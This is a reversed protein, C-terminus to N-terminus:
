AKNKVQTDDPVISLFFSRSISYVLIGTFAVGVFVPLAAISILGAKAAAYGAVAALLVTNTLACLHRVINPRTEGFENKKDEFDKINHLAGEIVTYVFAGFAAAGAIYSAPLILRGFWSQATQGLKGAGALWATGGIMGTALVAPALRERVITRFEMIM